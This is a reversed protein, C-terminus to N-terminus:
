LYFIFQIESKSDNADPKATPFDSLKKNNEVSRGPLNCTREWKNSTLREIVQCKVTQAVSLTLLHVRLLLLLWQLTTTHINSDPIHYQTTQYISISTEFFGAAEMKLMSSIKYFAVSIYFIHMLKAVPKIRGKVSKHQYREILNYSTVDWFVTNKTNVMTLLVYVPPPLHYTTPKM